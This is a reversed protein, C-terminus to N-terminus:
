SPRLAACKLMRAIEHVIPGIRYISMTHEVLLNITFNANACIRILAAVRINTIASGIRAEHPPLGSTEVAGVGASGVAATPVLAGAAVAAAGAVLAGSAVAARGSGVLPGAGVAASGAGVLVLVGLCFRSNPM